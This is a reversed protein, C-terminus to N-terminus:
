SEKWNEYNEFVFEDTKMSVKNYKPSVSYDRLLSIVRAFEEKSIECNTLRAEVVTYYSEIKAEQEFIETFEEPIEEKKLLEAYARKTILIESENLRLQGRIFKEGQANLRDRSLYIRHITPRRNGGASTTAAVAVRCKLNNNLLYFHHFILFCCEDSQDNKLFCYGSQMPISIFFEGKYEKIIEENKGSKETRIDGTYLKMYASCSGNEALEGIELEGRLLEEKNSITPFFYTHYTGPYGQYIKKDIVIHKDERNEGEKGMQSGITIDEFSVGLGKCLSILSSLKIDKAEGRMLNSITGQSISGGFSKCREAIAAQTVDDEKMIRKIITKINDLIIYTNEESFDAKNQM